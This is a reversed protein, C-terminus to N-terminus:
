RKEECIIIVVTINDDGGNDLAKRILSEACVKPDQSSLAINLIDTDTVPGSLGDSCLIIRDGDILKIENVSPECGAGSGLVKTVINRFPHVKAEEPTLIGISVQEFVWSHDIDIQEINGDRILYARSDGVHAVVATDDRIVCGVFTSAMNKKTPDRYIEEAIAFDAKVIADRFSDSISSDPISIAAAMIRKTTEIAVRSAVDGSAHGGLGDAVLFIGNPVDVSLADENRKRVRGVDTQGAGRVHLM